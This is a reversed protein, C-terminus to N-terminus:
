SGATIHRSWILGARASPLIEFDKLGRESQEFERWQGGGDVAEVWAVTRGAAGEEEDAADDTGRRAGRPPLAAARRRGGGRKAGRRPGGRWAVTAPRRGAM